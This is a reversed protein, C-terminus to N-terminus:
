VISLWYCTFSDPEEFALIGSFNGDGQPALPSMVVFYLAFDQIAGPISFLFTLLVCFLCVFLFYLYVM